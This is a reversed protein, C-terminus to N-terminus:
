ALPLLWTLRDHPQVTLTSFSKFATMYLGCMMFYLKNYQSAYTEGYEIFFDSM